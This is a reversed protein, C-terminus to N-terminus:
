GNRTDFFKEVTGSTIFEVEDRYSTGQDGVGLPGALREVPPEFVGFRVVRCEELGKVSTIESAWPQLVGASTDAACTREVERYPTAVVSPIARAVGIPIFWTGDPNRLAIANQPRRVRALDATM